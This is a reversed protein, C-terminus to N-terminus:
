AKTRAKRVAAGVLGTGLLILSAPEPTPSPSGAPEFQYTASSFFFVPSQGPASTFTFHATAIGSGTVDTSFLTPHGLSKDVSSAYDNVLGTMTFPATLTLNTPSLVASSYSLPSTAQLFGDGVKPYSSGNVTLSDLNGIYGNGNFSLTTPHSQGCPCAFSIAGFGDDFPGTAEFGNGMLDFSATAATATISGSTIVVPEARATAACALVFAVSCM